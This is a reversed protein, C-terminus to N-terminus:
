LLDFCRLLPPSGLLMALVFIVIYFHVVLLYFFQDLCTIQDERFLRTFCNSLCFAVSLTVFRLLDRFGIHVGELFSCCGIYPLQLTFSM